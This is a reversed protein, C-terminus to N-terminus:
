PASGPVRRRFASSPPRCYHQLFDAVLNEGFLRLKVLASAPDSHAYREAFGGLDALEGDHSRLFEFNRSNMTHAKEDM